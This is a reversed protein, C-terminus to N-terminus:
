IDDDEINFFELVTTVRSSLVTPELKKYKTSNKVLLFISSIVNM